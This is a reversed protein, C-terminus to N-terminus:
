INEGTIYNCITNVLIFGAAAGQDEVGAAKNAHVAAKGFKPKIRKTNELGEKSSKRAAEAAEKLSLKHESAEAAPLISDLVTRDGKECKGRKVIGDSYAKFFIALDQVDMCNKGTLAKGAEILGTAMLTCMTSPVASSMKIGCKLFLKGIDGDFIMTNAAELAAMWGKALTIGLYGDGMRADLGGLYDKKEIM